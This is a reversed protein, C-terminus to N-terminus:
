GGPAVKPNASASSRPAAAGGSVLASKAHTTSSGPANQNYAEILQACDQDKALGPDVFAFVAALPTIVTGLVAAIGGQKALQGASLAFKPQLLHGEVKIPTKLRVLRIKKPRGQIKLDLKEDGLEVQGSGTILVNSTDIVM